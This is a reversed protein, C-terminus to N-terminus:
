QEERLKRVVEMVSDLAGDAVDYGTQRDAVEEIAKLVREREASAGALREHHTIAQAKTDALIRYFCNRCSVEWWKKNEDQHSCHGKYCEGGCDPCPSLENPVSIHTSECVEPKHPDATVPFAPEKSKLSM